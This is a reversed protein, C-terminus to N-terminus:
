HQHFLEAMQIKFSDDILENKEECVLKNVYLFDKELGLIFNYIQDFTKSTILDNKCFGHKLFNNIVECNEGSELVTNGKNYDEGM